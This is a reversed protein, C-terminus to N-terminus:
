FGGHLAIKRSYQNWLIFHSASREWTSIRCSLILHLDKKLVSEVLYFSCWTWWVLLDWYWLLRCEFLYLVRCSFQHLFEQKRVDRHDQILILTVNYLFCVFCFLFFFWVHIAEQQGQSTLAVALPTFHHFNMFDLDHSTHFFRVSCNARHGVRFSEGFLVALQDAHHVSKTVHM